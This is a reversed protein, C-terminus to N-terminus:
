CGRRIGGQGEAGRSRGCRDRVRRRHTRLHLALPSRGARPRLERLAGGPDGMVKSSHPFALMPGLAALKDVANDIAKREQAPVADAEARAKPHYVVTWAGSPASVRRVTRSAGKGSRSMAWALKRTRGRPGRYAGGRIGDRRGARGRALSRRLSRFRWGPLSELPDIRFAAWRGRRDVFPEPFGL